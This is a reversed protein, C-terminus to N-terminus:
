VHAVTLIYFCYHFFRVYENFLKLIEKGEGDDFLSVIVWFFASYDFKGDMTAWNDVMSIAFRTQINIM